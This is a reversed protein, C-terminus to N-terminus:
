LKVKLLEYEDEIFLTRKWGDKVHTFAYKVEEEMCNECCTYIIQYKPGEKRFGPSWYELFDSYQYVDAMDDLLLKGRYNAPKIFCKSCIVFPASDSDSKSGDFEINMSSLEQGM